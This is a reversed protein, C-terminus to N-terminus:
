AAGNFAVVNEHEVQIGDKSIFVSYDEHRYTSKMHGVIMAKHRYDALMEQLVAYPLGKLDEEGTYPVAVSAELENQRLTEIDIEGDDIAKARAKWESETFMAQEELLNAKDIELMRVIAMAVASDTRQEEAVKAKVREDFCIKTHAEMMKALQIVGDRLDSNSVRREAIHKLGMKILRERMEIDREVFSEFCGSPDKTSFLPVTKQKKWLAIQGNTVYLPDRPDRPINPTANQGAELDAATWYLKHDDRFTRNGRLINIIKKLM